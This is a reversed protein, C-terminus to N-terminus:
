QPPAPNGSASLHRPARDTRRHHSLELRSRRTPTRLRDRQAHPGAAQGGGHGHRQRPPHPGDRGAATDIQGSRKTRRPRDYIRRPRRDFRGHGRPSRRLQGLPRRGAPLQAINSSDHASEGLLGAHIEILNHELMGLYTGGTAGPQGLEDSFITGAIPVGAEAAVTEMPRTDVNSEVFVVPVEREKILGVLRTIQDPSGQEETDIAWIYGTTLGYREALYQYANESTVLVRQAAPIEGLQEQYDADIEQLQALYKEAREEYAAANDPDIAILGDRINEAYTMGVNPDLFAHPNIEHESGDAHTLYMPEVGASVEVVQESDLEKGATEILSNFWGDGVEMNLGNFFVIDATTTKEIDAALPTYEHPDVGLPVISHVFADPGAINASIDAVVSFTAVIAVGDEIEAEGGVASTGCASVALAVVASLPLFKSFM